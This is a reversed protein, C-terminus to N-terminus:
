RNPGNGVLNRYLSRLLRPLYFGDAAPPVRTMNRRVRLALNDASMPGLHMGVLAWLLRQRNVDVPHKFATMLSIGSLSLRTLGTTRTLTPTFCWEAREHLFPVRFSDTLNGKTRLEM